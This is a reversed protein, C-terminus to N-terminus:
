IKTILFYYEFWTDYSGECGYEKVHIDINFNNDKTNFYTQAIEILHLINEEGNYEIYLHKDNSVNM